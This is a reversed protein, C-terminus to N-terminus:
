SDKKKGAEAADKKASSALIRKALPAYRSKPYDSVVQDLYVRGQAPQRSEFLTWGLWYYLKDKARYQPYTELLGRYRLVAADYSKKKRYFTGVVFEHEALNKEGEDIMDQAPDAYPSQPYRRGVEKLDDIARQTQAQDRAPDRVQKLSCVGAQFQAYPARANDGYLQVFDLYKSRAEILSISDGQYFTVDALAVKVLPELKPRNEATFQIKELDLRAKRLSRAQLEETARQFLAEAPLREITAEKKQKRHACGPAAILLLAALGISLRKGMRRM